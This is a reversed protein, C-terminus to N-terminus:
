QAQPRWFRQGLIDDPNWRPREPENAVAKGILFNLQTLAVAADWRFPRNMDDSPSHVRRRAGEGAATPEDSNGVIWLAPIGKMVFPFHDSYNLPATAKNVKLGLLDAAAEVVTGLTSNTGGM